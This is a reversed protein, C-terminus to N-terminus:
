VKLNKLYDNLKVYLDKLEDIQKQQIVANAHDMFTEMKQIEEPALTAKKDLYYKRIKHLLLENKQAMAESEEEDKLKVEMAQANSKMSEIEDESLGSSMTVRISQEKGTDLDKASVQVIGNADIHFSVEIEPEGANALRIGELVFEGLLENEEAAPSFGQFVKVRVSPQNTPSRPSSKQADGSGNYQGRDSAHANWGGM